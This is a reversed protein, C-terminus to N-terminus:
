NEGNRVVLSDGFLREYSTAIVQWDYKAAVSIRAVDSMRQWRAPSKWLRVIEAAIIECSEDISFLLGNEQDLVLDVNGPIRSAVIPLGSALAELVVNSLGEYASLHVLFTAKRYALAVEARDLWGAFTVVENLDHERVYEELQTREPGDGIILARGPLGGNLHIARVIELLRIPCKQAHLRGVSLLKIESMERQKPPQYVSTDIGNPIVAVPTRDHMESLRQLGAAVATVSIARRLVSRRLPAILWHWLGLEPVIGPVDAGRLSIVYPIKTQRNLWWAVIGSPISFLAIVRDVSYRRAVGAVRWSGVLVFRAMQALSGQHLEERGTQVRVIEIGDETTYGCLDQFASTLVVVKHGQKHLASALNGTASAAGGGIPPYEYNILLFNAM